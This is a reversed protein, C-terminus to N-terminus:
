LRRGQPPPRPDLAPDPGDPRLHNESRHPVTRKREKPFSSSVDGITGDGITGWNRYRKKQHSIANAFISRKDANVTIILLPYFFYRCKAHEISDNDSHLAFLAALM